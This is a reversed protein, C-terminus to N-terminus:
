HQQVTSRRLTNLLSLPSVVVLVLHLSGEEVQLDTICLSFRLCFGSSKGGFARARGRGGRFGGRFAIHKELEVQQEFGEHGWKSGLKQQKPVVVVPQDQSEAEEVPTPEAQTEAEKAEAERKEREERVRNARLREEEELKDMELRGDKKEEKVELEVSGQTHGFHGGRGFGGRGRGRGMGRFGGRPAGRFNPNQHQGRWYGSMGRLGAYGNGVEGTGYHRQDHTWFGGVRPTFKPDAAIKQQYVDRPNPRRPASPASLDTPPTDDQISLSATQDALDSTQEPLPSKVSPAKKGKKAPVSPGPASTSEAKDTTDAKAGSEKELKAAAKKEKRKEKFREKKRERKEALRKLAEESLERREGVAGGGRVGGRGRGRGRGRGSFEEFTVDEVANDAPQDAWALPTTDAFVPASAKGSKAEATSASPEDPKSSVAEEVADEDSEDDDESVSSADTLSGDSEGGREDDSEDSQM